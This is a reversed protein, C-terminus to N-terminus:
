THSGSSPLRSSDSRRIYTYTHIHKHSCTHTHARHPQVISGRHLPSVWRRCRRARVSRSTIRSGGEEAPGSSHPLPAPCAQRDPNSLKRGKM